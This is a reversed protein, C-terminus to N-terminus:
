VNRLFLSKHLCLPSSPPKQFGLLSLLTRQRQFALLIGQFHNVSFALSVLSWIKRWRVHATHKRCVTRHPQFFSLTKNCNPILLSNAINNVSSLLFPPTVMPTQFGPLALFHPPPKGIGTYLRWGLLSLPRIFIIFKRFWYNSWCSFSLWTIM